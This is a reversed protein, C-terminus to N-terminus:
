DEQETQEDHPKESLPVPSYHTWSGGDDPEEDLGEQQGADVEVGGDNEDKSRGVM